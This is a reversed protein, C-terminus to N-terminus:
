ADSEGTLISIIRNARSLSPYVENKIEAAMAPNAKHRDAFTWANPDIVRAIEEAKGELLVPLAAQLATRIVDKEKLLPTGNERISFVARAGAEVAKDSITGIRHRTM